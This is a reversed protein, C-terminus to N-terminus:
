DAIAKNAKEQFDLLESEIIFISEERGGEVIQSIDQLLKKYKDSQSMNRKNQNNIFYRVRGTADVETSLSNQNKKNLLDTLVSAVSLSRSYSINADNFDCILFVSWYFM